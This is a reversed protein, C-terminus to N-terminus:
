PITVALFGSRYTRSADQQLVMFAVENGSKLVREARTFDDLNRIEYRQGNVMMRTIITGRTIGADEAVSNQEVSSVYVGDPSSLRLQRVLDPTIAQVRIGLKAQSAQGQDGNDPAGGGRGNSAADTLIAQQDVISIPFTMEKGDRNVKV